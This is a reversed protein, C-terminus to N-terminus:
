KRHPFRQLLEVGDAELMQEILGTGDGAERFPRRGLLGDIGVLAVLRSPEGVAEPRPEGPGVRVVELVALSAERDPDGGIARRERALGHRAEFALRAAHEPAELPRRPDAGAVRGFAAAKADGLALHVLRLAAFVAALRLVGDSAEHEFAALGRSSRLWRRCARSRRSSSTRRPM